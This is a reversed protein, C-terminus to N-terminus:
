LEVRSGSAASEYVAALARLDALGDAGDPEIDGDTLLAHAFYDFEEVTEDADAGSLELTGEPTEVTAERDPGPVYASRVAIRGDSGLLELSDNPHGSFSASFDGVWGDFECRFDVHQDVGDFAADPSRTTASVALPDDGTLFRATNLPYVGVDAMAGGGALRADLRWQDPGRDGGLVDATFDGTARQPEGIGGRAVVERLRRTVPDLQMRYATMLRVGADDCADVLRAARDATAELPKECIVDKGLRAATEVHPLHLRNPTAVYAADYEDAAEGAEYEGYDITVLGREDALAARTDPDGSVAVTPEAYEAEAMAPISTNRAHEGCGVTALRVTGAVGDAEWDRRRVDALTTDFM